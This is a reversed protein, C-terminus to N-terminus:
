YQKHIDFHRGLLFLLSGKKVILSKVIKYIILFTVKLLLLSMCVSSQDEGSFKTERYVNLMITCLQKM